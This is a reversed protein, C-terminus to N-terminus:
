SIQSVCFILDSSLILTKVYQCRCLKLKQTMCYAFKLCMLYTYEALCYATPLLSFLSTVCYCLLCLDLYLLTASQCMRIAVAQIQPRVTSWRSHVKEDIIITKQFLFDLGMGVCQRLIAYEHNHYALKESSMSDLLAEPQIPQSGVPVDFTNRASRLAARVSGLLCDVFYKTRSMSVGDLEVSVNDDLKGPEDIIDTQTEPKVSAKAAVRRKPNAKAKVKGKSKAKPTAELVKGQMPTTLLSLDILQSTKRFIWPTPNM